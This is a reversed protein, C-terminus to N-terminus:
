SSLDMVYHLGLHVAQVSISRGKGTTKKTFINHQHGRTSYFCVDETRKLDSLFIGM